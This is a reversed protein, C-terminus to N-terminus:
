TEIEVPLTMNQLSAQILAEQDIFDQPNKIRDSSREEFNTNNKKYSNKLTECNPCDPSTYIYKM